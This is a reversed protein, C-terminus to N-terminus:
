GDVREELNFMVSDDLGVVRMEYPFFGILWASPQRPVM